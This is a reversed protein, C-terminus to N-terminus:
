LAYESDTKAEGRGHGMVPTGIVGAWWIVLAVLHIPQCTYISEAFVLVHGVSPVGRSRV